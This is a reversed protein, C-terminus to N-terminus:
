SAVEGLNSAAESLAQEWGDTEHHRLLKVNDHWPSLDQGFWRWDPNPSAFAVTPVGLGAAVYLTANQITMIVDMAAVQAAFGDIDSLPDIAFDTHIKVGYKKEAAKIEADHEGYQLNIFVADPIAFIKGWDDLPIGKPPRSAWSIGIKIGAGLADYRSRCKAALTDDAQLYKGLPKFGELEPRLWRPLDGMPCAFDFKQSTIRPDPPETRVIVEVNPFSRRFLPALRKETEIVCIDARSAIEPILGSFLLKDGVGQESWILIKAGKLDSGEWRPYSFQRPANKFNKARWRWDYERWGEPLNGQILLAHGLNHHADAFEPDIIIARRFYQEAGELDGKAFLAKALNYNIAVSDPGVILAQRLVQEAEGGDETEMLAAGFNALLEPHDPQLIVVQRFVSIAEDIRGLEKLVVGLNSLADGYEPNIAVAREFAIAAAELHSQEKLTVGLNSHAEAMDPHIEIARQYAEKAADLRGQAKLAIGLNCYADAFEPDAAIASQFLKGAAGAHGTQLGIVGLSHLAEPHDPMHNLFKRYLSEATGLEGNGHHRQAQELLNLEASHSFPPVPAQPSKNNM